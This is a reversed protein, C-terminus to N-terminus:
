ESRVPVALREEVSSVVALHVADGIGTLDPLKNVLRLAAQLFALRDRRVGDAILL